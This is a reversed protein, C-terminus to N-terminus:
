GDEATARLMWYGKEHITIRRTALDLTAADGAAEAAELVSRATVAVAEHDAALVAAKCVCRYRGTAAVTQRDRIGHSQAPAPSFDNM